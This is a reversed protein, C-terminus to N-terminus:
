FRITLGASTILDHQTKAETEITGRSVYDEVDFRLGLIPNIPFRFGAGFVGGLNTEINSQSSMKHGRRVIAPGAGIHFGVPSMSPSLGVMLKVGAAFLNFSRTENVTAGAVDVKVPSLGAVAEIGLNSNRWYTFRAGGAFSNRREVSTIVSSASPDLGRPSLMAAWVGLSTSSQRRTQANVGAPIMSAVGALALSLAAVRLLHKTAM